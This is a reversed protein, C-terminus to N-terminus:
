RKTKKLFDIDRYDFDSRQELFYIIEDINGKAETESIVNIEEEFRDQEDDEANKHEETALFVIDEVSLTEGTSINNEEEVFEKATFAFEELNIRKKILNLGSQIEELNLENVKNTM